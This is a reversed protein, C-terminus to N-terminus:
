KKSNKFSDRIGMPDKQRIDYYDPPFGNLQRWMEYWIPVDNLLAIGQAGSGVRLADPWAVDKPDPRVLVRYLGNGSSFPDIATVVGGFSGVSLGPWGSFVLTPWGDFLFRVKNGKRLLPLDLPRVYLEVALEPHIPSISIIEEGERVLEGLGTKRAKTIIGTQPALVWYLGNRYQFNAYQNSLKNFESEAEFYASQAAFSESHVKAIKEQYDNDLSNIEIGANIVENRSKLLDNQAIINKARADQAKQRRAELENIPQLGEKYLTNSRELQKEAIQFQTQAAILENSDSEVKLRNQILKNRAQDLKNLRSAQLANLQRQLADVKSQYAKVKSAAATAQNATRQLLSTDFFAEKIESLHLLTDGKRVTDGEQVYWKEIRGGIISQLTQPRQDPRLATVYGNSQINQTWPMFLFLLGLLGLGIIWHRIRHPPRTKQGHQFSDLQENPYVKDVPQSSLNLM